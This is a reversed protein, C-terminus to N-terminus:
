VKAPTQEKPPQAAAIRGLSRMVASRYAPVSLPISALKHIAATRAHLREAGRGRGRGPYLYGLAKLAARGRSLKGGAVHLSAGAKISGIYFAIRAYSAGGGSLGQKM